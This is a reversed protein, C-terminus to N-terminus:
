RDGVLHEVGAGGNEAAVTLLDALDRMHEADGLLIDEVPDHDVLVLAVSVVTEGVGVIDVRDVLARTVSLSSASAQRASGAGVSFGPTM